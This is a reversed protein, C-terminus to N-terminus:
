LQVLRCFEIEPGNQLSFTNCTVMICCCTHPTQSVVCSVVTLHKQNFFHVTIPGFNQGLFHCDRSTFELLYDQHKMIQLVVVNRQSNIQKILLGSNVVSHGHYYCYFGCHNTM